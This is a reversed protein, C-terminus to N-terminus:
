LIEGWNRGWGSDCPFKIYDTFHERAEEEMVRGVHEMVDEIQDRDCEYVWADHVPVRLMNQMGEKALRIGAKLLINSVINQPYFALAEKEVNNKNESTILMFRRHNGFPSVLDQGSHITELVDERWQSARPILEFFTDIYEQAKHVPMKYEAALSFAERGYTLGFVVAKARIYNDKDRVKDFDEGYFQKAVEVHISRSEDDFISKLYTDEALACVVRLEAQRYDSQGLVASDTRPIYLGRLRPGRTVNQLNPNSSSLRGTTTGHLKYTPHVRGKYLRSRTGKVYTGYSKSEKKFELHARLFEYVNKSGKKAAREQVNLLTEARTNPVKTKFEDNLVRTVQQWSNPNYAEDAVMEQLMVKLNDMSILYEDTLKDLYDIDVTMGNREVHMLMNSAEVLHDHLKREEDTLVEEFLKWLMYTNHCDFANYKYLIKRPIIAYNKNTGLYKSVEAKWSPSGLREISNYELSHVGRREDTVYSALMTDFWLLGQPSIRHLGQLDFKGNHAIIKNQELVLRLADRVSQLRLANEGLVLVKGVEYGIGVCLYDYEEPHADNLDKDIGIEIDVSIPISGRRLLEKLGDVADRDDLVVFKPASWNSTTTGNIKKFDTIIDPFIGSNYLSAAPHFTPIIRVGPFAKSVKGPGVRTATIGESTGLISRQAPNGLAVITSPRRSNIEGMLRPRCAKVAAAPTNANQEPQCLVTNTVFVNRRDFGNHELVTNLLQGGAGIFLLQKRVENYGPADGVIVLDALTPGDSPCYSNNEYLPCEECLADSHHRTVHGTSTPTSTTM